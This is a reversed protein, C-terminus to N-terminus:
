RTLAAVGGVIDIIEKTIAEQRAKNYSLTLDDILRLANETANRMAVMRASHESALAELVARYVQLETFRQLMPYLIADPSPEFLYPVYVPPTGEAMAEVPLLVQVEPRQSLTTVFDTFALWVQDALGHEFDDLLLRALPRVDDPTPRDGLEFDAVIDLGYRGAYDRGKRGVTVVRVPVTQQGIFEIAAEIVNHNYGGCLGRDATILAIEVVRVPRSSLLPHARKQAPSLRAVLHRLVQRSRDTYPRTGVTMIQARRMKSASVTEM